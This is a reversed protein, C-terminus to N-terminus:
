NIRKTIILFAFAIQEPPNKIFLFIKIIKARIALKDIRAMTPIKPQELEVVPVVLPPFALLTTAPFHARTTVHSLVEWLKYKSSHVEVDVAVVTDVSSPVIAM